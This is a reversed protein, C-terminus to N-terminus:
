SVSMKCRIRSDSNQPTNYVDIAFTNDQRVLFWDAGFPKLTGRLKPGQFSGGTIPAVGRIGSGGNGVSIFESPHVVSFRIDFLLETKLEYM